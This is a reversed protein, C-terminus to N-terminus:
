HRHWCCIFLFMDVSCVRVLVVVYYGSFGNVGSLGVVSCGLLVGIGLIGGARSRFACVRPRWVAGVEPDSTGVVGDDTVYDRLREPASAAPEAESVGWTTAAAPDVAGAPSGPLPVALREEKRRWCCGPRPPSVALTQRPAVGGGAGSRGADAAPVGGRVSQRPNGGAGATAGCNPASGRKRVPCYVWVRDWKQCWTAGSLFVRFGLNELQNLERAGYM